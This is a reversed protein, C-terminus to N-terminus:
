INKTKLVAADDWAVPDHEDVVRLQRAGRQVEGNLGELARGEAGDPDTDALGPVDVCGGVAVKILDCDRRFM